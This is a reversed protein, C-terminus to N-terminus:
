NNNIKSGKVTVDRSAKVSIKGSGNLAIDKGRITISGDKKMSISAQGTVFTIADAANVTITKGVNVTLQQAIAHTESKGITSTKNGGISIKQDRGVSLSMTNGITVSQNKGVSWIDDGGITHTQSEGVTMSRRTGITNNQEAGVNRTESQGVSDERLASVTITQTMGISQSHHGGISESANSGVTIVEDAGVSLSRNSGVSESDHVGIAVSRNNGITVDKNNAVSEVRNHGVSQTADNGVDEIWDHGIQRTEDNKVLERHNKEAQFYVEEDGSKDEFRLENFGGSAPTSWSKWGSQSASAPLGYPPTNQANYVRGTIIPQDPDGELFDVIVEHGIRPVQIFGWGAGAWAASVRIFCSSHQDHNDLRDWHFHVKVRAHEDCYIEAGSPGVVVATQPGSMRPKKTRRPPRYALTIPALELEVTYGRPEEGRADDLASPLEEDWMDYRAAVVYYEANEADRPYEQLKFTNGSRLHRASAKATIRLRNAQLEELRRKAIAEGKAYDSYRGDYEYAEAEKLAAAQADVAKATLDNGPMKFNYDTHTFKGTRVVAKPTWEFIFEGESYSRRNDPAYPLADGDQNPTMGYNSDSILMKHGDKSHEFRYFIGEHEMLRQLFDLDSEGYQVCYERTEYTEQLKMDFAVDPWSGLVKKIIDPVTMDQFIRNDSDLSLFWLAPRLTIRFISIEDHFEHLAIEAVRGDFYRPPEGAITITAPTNLVELPDLDQKTTAILMRYCFPQSLQDEGEMRSFIVDPGIAPLSVTIHRPM